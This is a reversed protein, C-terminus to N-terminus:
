FDQLDRVHGYSKNWMTSRGHMVETWEPLAIVRRAYDLLETPVLEEQRADIMRAVFSAFHADIVTPGILDGFIWLSGQSHVNYQALVAQFLDNAQRKAWAVSEPRLAIGLGSKYSLSRKTM